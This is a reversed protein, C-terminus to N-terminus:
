FTVTLYGLDDDRRLGERITAMQFVCDAAFKGEIGQVCSEGGNPMAQGDSSQKSEQEDAKGNAFIQSV